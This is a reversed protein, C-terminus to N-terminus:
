HHGSDVGGARLQDRLPIQVHDVGLLFLATPATVPGRSAQHLVRLPQFRERVDSLLGETPLREVLPRIHVSDVVVGLFGRLTNGSPNM